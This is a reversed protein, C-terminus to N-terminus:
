GESQKKRHFVGRIREKTKAIKHKLLVTGLLAIEENTMDDHILCHYEEPIRALDVKTRMHECGGHYYANIDM